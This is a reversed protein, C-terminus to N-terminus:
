KGSFILDKKSSITLQPHPQNRRISDQGICQRELPFQLLSISFFVIFLFISFITYYISLYKLCYKTNDVNIKVDKKSSCM